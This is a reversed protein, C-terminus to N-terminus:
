DLSTVFPITAGEGLRGASDVLWDRCFDRDSEYLFRVGGLIADRRSPQLACYVAGQVPWRQAFWGAADGSQLANLLLIATSGEFGARKPLVATQEVVLAPYRADGPAFIGDQV